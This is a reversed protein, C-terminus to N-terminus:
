DLERYALWGAASTVKTAHFELKLKRDFSVRLADKRREGMPNDKKPDVRFFNTLFPEAFGAFSKRRRREKAAGYGQRATPHSRRFRVVAFIFGDSYM